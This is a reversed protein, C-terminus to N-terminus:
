DIWVLLPDDDWISMREIRAPRGYGAVKVVLEVLHDGSSLAEAGTAFYSVGLTRQSVTSGWGGLQGGLGQMAVSGVLHGNLRLQMTSRSAADLPNGQVRAKGAIFVRGDHGPPIRITGQSIVVTSLLPPCGSGYGGACIPLCVPGNTKGVAGHVQLGGAVGVVVGGAGVHYSFNGGPHISAPFDTGGLHLRPLYEPSPPTGSLVGHCFVAGHLEAGSWLDQVAHTARWLLSPENGADAGDTLLGVMADGGSAILQARGSGLVYVPLDQTPMDLTAVRVWPVGGWGCRSSGFRGSYPIQIPVSDAALQSQLVHQAPNVFVTLNASGLDFSGDRGDAELTVVHTGAGVAAAGVANYTHPQPVVSKQWDVATTNSIPVGDVAIWLWAATPCPWSRPLVHGDANVLLRGPQSLTITERRLTTAGPIMARANVEFYRSEGRDPAGPQASAPVTTAALILISLSRRPLPM